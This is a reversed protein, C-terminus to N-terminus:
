FGILLLGVILDRNRKALVIIGARDSRKALPKGGGVDGFACGKASDITM